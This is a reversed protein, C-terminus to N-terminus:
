IYNLFFLDIKPNSLLMKEGITQGDTHSGNIKKELELLKLNLDSPKKVKPFIYKAFILCFMLMYNYM